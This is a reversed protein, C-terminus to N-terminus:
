AAPIVALRFAVSGVLGLLGLFALWRALVALPSAASFVGDAEMEGAHGGAPPPPPPAPPAATDAPLALGEVAFSFAGRIVHGDAGATRWEVLYRGPGLGAPLPLTLARNGTGPEPVAAGAQVTDGSESVLTAATLRPEVGQTFRLRLETPPTRLVADAAPSSSELRTHAAGPAPLAALLLLAICLRFLVALRNM